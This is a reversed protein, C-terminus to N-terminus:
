SKNCLNTYNFYTHVYEYSFVPLFISIVSDATYLWKQMQNLNKEAGELDVFHPKLTIQSAGVM